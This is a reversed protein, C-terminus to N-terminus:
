DDATMTGQASADAPPQLKPYTARETFGIRDLPFYRLWARGIISDRSIPGSTRSDESVSRNDGMAFYMGDPVDWETRREPGEGRTPVPRGRATQAIYPENIRVSAGGSPTVLVDGNVLEVHDGRVSPSQPVYGVHALSQSRHRWPDIGMVTASGRTPKEFGVWTKILTSKGAANPGVLATIGGQPIALDIAQLAWVGRRYRKALGRAELVADTM